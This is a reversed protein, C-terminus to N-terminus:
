GPAMTIGEFPASVYTGDTLVCGTLDVFEGANYLEIYDRYKGDNDALITENKACIETIQIQYKGSSHLTSQFAPDSLLGLVIGIALVGVLLWILLTDKKKM